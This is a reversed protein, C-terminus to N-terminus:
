PGESWFKGKLETFALIAEEVYVNSFSYDFQKIKFYKSVLITQNVGGGGYM